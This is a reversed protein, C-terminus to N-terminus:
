GNCTKDSSQTVKSAVSLASGGAALAASSGAHQGVFGGKLPVDMVPRVPKGENPVPPGLVPAPPVVPDAMPIDAGIKPMPMRHPRRAGAGMMAGRLRMQGPSRFAM